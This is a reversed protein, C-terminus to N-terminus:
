TVSEIDKGPFRVLFTTGKGPTSEVKIQGKHEDVVRIVNSLGLGTGGDKTSFFPDFIRGLDETPIGVGEDEVKLEIMGEPLISTVVEIKGKRGHMAHISNLILNIVVQELNSANGFVRPHEQSLKLRLEFNGKRVEYHLIILAQRILNNLDVWERVEPDFRAYTTLDRALVRIRDVAELIRKVKARDGEGVASKLSEADVSITTLPSNLEHAIGATLSGLSALKESQLVQQELSKMRTIDMGLVIVNALEQGGREIVATNFLGYRVEGSKTKFPIEFSDRRRGEGLGQLFNIFPEQDRPQVFVNIFDVMGKGIMEERSYGTTRETERNVSEIKGEHNVVIIAANVNELISELYTKLYQVESLSKELETKSRLLERSTQDLDQFSGELLVNSKELEQILESYRRPVRTVYQLMRRAVGSRVPWTIRFRCAEAGFMTDGLRFTGDPNVSGIEEEQEPGRAFVRDGRVLIQRGQFVDLRSIPTACREERVVANKTKGIGPLGNLVGQVYLCADRNNLSPNFVKRELLIEGPRSELVRYRSQRSYLGALQPIRRYVTEFRGLRILVSVGQEIKGFAPAIQMSLQGVKFMIEPDGSLERLRRALDAFLEFSFWSRTDELERPSFSVGTLLASSDLAARRCYEVMSFIIRGNIEQTGTETV